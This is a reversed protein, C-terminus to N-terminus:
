NRVQDLVIREIEAWDVDLAEAVDMINIDKHLLAHIEFSEKIPPSDYNHGPAPKTYVGVVDFEGNKYKITSIM